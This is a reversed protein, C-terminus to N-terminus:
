RLRASTAKSRTKMVSCRSSRMQRPQLANGANRPAIAASREFCQLAEAARGNQALAIGLNSLAAAKNPNRPDVDVARRMLAIAEPQAGQQM